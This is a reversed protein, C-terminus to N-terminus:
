HLPVLAPDSYQPHSPRCPAEKFCRKGHASDQENLNGCGPSQIIKLWPDAQLRWAPQCPQRGNPLHQWGM